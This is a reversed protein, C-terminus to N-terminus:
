KMLVMKITETVSGVKAHCFYVGNALTNGADDRGNWRITHDGAPM